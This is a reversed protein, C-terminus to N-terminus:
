SSKDTISEVNVVAKLVGIFNGDDDLIKIAIDSSYVGASEDFGGESLFVGNQEAKQWWVEDNQIFDSTKHSQAVNSGYQNTVFIEAYKFQSESKEDAEMFSRIVDAASNNILNYAFSDPVDPDSSQWRGEVQSILEEPFGSASLATNSEIIAQQIQPLNVIERAQEIKMNIETQLTQLNDILVEDDTKPTVKIMENEVFYEIARLFEDDTIQDNVWFGVATKIWAPIQSEEQASVFSFLLGGSIIVGCIVFFITQRSKELGNAIEM